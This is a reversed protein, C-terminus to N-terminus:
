EDLNEQGLAFAQQYQEQTILTNMESVPSEGEAALIPTSALLLSVQFAIPTALLQQKNM